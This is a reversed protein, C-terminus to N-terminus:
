VIDRKTAMGSGWSYGSELGLQLWERARVTAMVSGWRLWKLAGVTAM